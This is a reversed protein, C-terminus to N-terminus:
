KSLKSIETDNLSSKGGGKKKKWESSFQLIKSSSPAEPVM